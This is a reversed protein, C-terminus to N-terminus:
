RSENTNINAPQKLEKLAADLNGLFHMMKSNRVIKRLISIMLKAKEIRDDPASIGIYSFFGDIVKQIATEQKTVGSQKLLHPKPTDVGVINGLSTVIYVADDSTLRGNVLYQREFQAMESWPDAVVRFDEASMNFVSKQDKKGDIMVPYKQSVSKFISEVIRFKETDTDSSAFDSIGLGDFAVLADRIIPMAKDFSHIVATTAGNTALKKAAALTDKRLIFLRNYSYGSSVLDEYEDPIIKEVKTLDAVIRDLIQKKSSDSSGVEVEGSPTYKHVIKCTYTGPKVIVEREDSHAMSLRGYLKEVDLLIDEPQMRAAIVFGLAGDIEKKKSERSLWQMTAAFSSSAPGYKAFRTAIEKSQSWSSVRDWKLDVIKGGERISQLFKLGQGKDLTGDYSTRSTLSYESFLLGRYLVLPKTPRLGPISALEKQARTSLKHYGRNGNVFETIEKKTDASVTLNSVATIDRFLDSVFEKMMDLNEKNLDGAKLKKLHDFSWKDIKGSEARSRVFSRVNENNFLWYKLSNVFASKDKIDDLSITKSLIVNVKDDKKIAKKLDGLQLSSAENLVQLFKM